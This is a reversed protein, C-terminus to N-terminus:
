KAELLKRIDRIQKVDEPFVFEFPEGIKLWEGGSPPQKAPKVRLGVSHADRWVQIMVTTKKM